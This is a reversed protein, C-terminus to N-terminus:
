RLWGLSRSIRRASKELVRRTQEVTTPVSDDLVHLFPVTLAAVV